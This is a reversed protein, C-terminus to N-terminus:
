SLQSDTFVFDMFDRLRLCWREHVFNSTLIHKNIHTNHNEIGVPNVKM